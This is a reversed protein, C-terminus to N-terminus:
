RNSVAVVPSETYDQKSTGDSTPSVTLPIVVGDRAMDEV